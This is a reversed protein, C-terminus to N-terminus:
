KSDIGRHQSISPTDSYLPPPPPPPLSEVDSGTDEVEEGSICMSNTQLYRLMPLSLDLGKATPLHENFQQTYDYLVTPGRTSSRASSPLSPTSFWSSPGSEVTSHRNGLNQFREALFAHHLVTDISDENTFVDTPVFSDVYLPHRSKERVDVPVAPLSPQFAVMPIVDVDKPFAENISGTASIYDYENVSGDTDTIVTNNFNDLHSNNLHSPVNSDSVSASLSSCSITSIQDADAAPHLYGDDTTVNEGSGEEHYTSNYTPSRYILM